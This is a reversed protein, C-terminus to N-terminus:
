LKQYLLITYLVLLFILLYSWVALEAISTAAVVQVTEIAAPGNKPTNFIRSRYQTARIWINIIQLATLLPYAILSRKTITTHYEWITWLILTLSAISLITYIVVYPSRYFRLSTVQSGLPRRPVRSNASM